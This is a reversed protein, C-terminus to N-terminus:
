GCRDEGTEAQKLVRNRPQLARLLLFFCRFIDLFYYPYRLFSCEYEFFM